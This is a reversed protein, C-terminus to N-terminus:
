TNRRKLIIEAIEMDLPTTMKINEPDGEFTSVEVGYIEAVSADDTVEFTLKRHLESITKYRFVQPTQSAYLSSRDVTSTVVSAEVMKVTDNIPVVPIAADTNESATIARRILASSVCPRAGDHIMVFDSSKIQGLGIKVSDQRRIGGLVVEVSQYEPGSTLYKLQGVNETNALVITTEFRGVELFANVSHLISPLGAIETLIKDIGGMRDGSGAGLIIASFRNM